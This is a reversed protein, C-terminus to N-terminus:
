GYFTLNKGLRPTKDVLMAPDAKEEPFNQYSSSLKSADLLSSLTQNAGGLGQVMPGMLKSLVDGAAMSKTRAVEGAYGSLASGYAGSQQAGAKRFMDSINQYGQEFQPELSALVGQLTTQYAPNATPNQLFELLQQGGKLGIGAGGGLIQNAIDNDFFQQTSEGQRQAKKNRETEFGPM